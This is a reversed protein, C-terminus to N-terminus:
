PWDERVPAEDTAILLAGYLSLGLVLAWAWAAAAHAACSVCVVAPALMM